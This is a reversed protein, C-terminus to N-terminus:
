VWYCVFSTDPVVFM